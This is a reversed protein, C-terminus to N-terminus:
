SGAEAGPAEARGPRRLRSEVLALLAAEDEIILRIRVAHINLEAALAPPINMLDKETTLLTGARRSLDRLEAETYFHHDTFCEFFSVQVGLDRLTRAFAEPQGIGCFAGAAGRLTEPLEGDIRATFIPASVSFQRVLRRLGAYERRPDARSIVVAGARSLARFPERLYGMPFVGGRYSDIADILVIDLDRRIRWHQFGDDLLVADPQTRRTLADFAEIRDAGVGVAAHGANLFLQAEEGTQEVPASEGPLLALAATADKRGYGRTLIAPKHGSNALRESLWLVFPTKGTGGMALNGVSIVRVGPLAAGKQKGTRDLAVGASWFWSMPELLLRVPWAPLPTPVALDYTRDIEAVARATAGRRADALERGRRGLTGLAVPDALLRQVDSALKDKGTIYLAQGELFSDAISQFNENHPGAIVPVGFAAPELINHGGRSVISGGMFVLSAKAFLASLEGITDLLLVGPLTLTTAGDLESRRVFAVGADALKRAAADFREPRRPVLIVLLRPHNPALAKFADIVLDDEDVSDGDAPPMTSAAIWTQASQVRDLFAEVAPTIRTAAPDFDYKLNGADIVNSAGLEAYRAAAISDQALVADPWSLAAHFFWRWKRYQPLAKDSIRGNVVVLGAGFLKADRWLNPWIETEMVVVMAPKLARLVRRVAFRYDLPVYFIGAALSQLKQEAMARGAITSCSVYVPADPLTERLRRILNIATLAEGVSVAHLWIAGPM